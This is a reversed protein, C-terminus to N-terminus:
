ASKQVKRFYKQIFKRQSEMYRDKHAMMGQGCSAHTALIPATGVKLDMQRARFCVSGDYHDFTFDEDFTLGSEIAKRTFILCQGDLWVCPLPSPGFGNPLMLDPYQPHVHQVFGSAKGQCAETWLFPRTEWDSPVCYQLGGVTGILDFKSEQVKKFFEFDNCTWDDHCYCIYNSDLYDSTAKNYAKSLGDHNNWIVHLRIDLEPHAQENFDALFRMIPLQSGEPKQTAVVFCFKM